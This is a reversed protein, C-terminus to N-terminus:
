PPGVAPATKRRVLDALTGLDQFLDATFEADDVTIGFDQEIATVLALAEVSDLALGRGFLATRPGVGDLAAPSMELSSILLRKIREEIEM